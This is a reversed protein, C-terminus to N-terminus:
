FTNSMMQFSVKGEQKSEQYTSIIILNEVSAQTQSNQGCYLYPCNFQWRYISICIVTGYSFVAKTTKIEFRVDISM